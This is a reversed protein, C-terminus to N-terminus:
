TPSARARHQEEIDTLRRGIWPEALPCRPSSSNKREVLDTLEPVAGRPLLRQIM